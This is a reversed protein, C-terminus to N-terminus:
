LRLITPSGEDFIDPSTGRACKELMKTLSITDGRRNTASVNIGYRKTLECTPTSLEFLPPDPEPVGAGVAASSRTPMTAKAGMAMLAPTAAPMNAMAHQMPGSSLMQQLFNPATSAATACPTATTIISTKKSTM